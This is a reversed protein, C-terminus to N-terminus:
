LKINLHKSILAGIEEAEPQRGEPISTWFHSDYINTAITIILPSRKDSFLIRYITREAITHEEIKIKGGNFDLEFNAPAKKM